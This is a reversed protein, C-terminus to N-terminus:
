HHSDEQSLPTTHEDLLRDEGGHAATSVFSILDGRRARAHRQGVLTFQGLPPGAVIGEVIRTGRGFTDVEVAQLATSVAQRARGTGTTFVATATPELDVRLVEQKGCLQQLPKGIMREAHHLGQDDRSARRHQRRNGVLQIRDGDQPARGGRLGRLDLSEALCNTRLPQGRQQGCRELGVTKPTLAETGGCRKNPPRNSRSGGGSRM